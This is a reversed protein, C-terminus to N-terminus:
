SWQSKSMFSLDRLVNKLLEDDDAWRLKLVVEELLKATPFKGEYNATVGIDAAGKLDHGVVKQIWRPTVMAQSILYNIVTHRFSHFVTASIQGEEGGIGLKRRYRSFWSTVPGGMNGKKERKLEPFLRTQGEEKVSEIYRLLGLDNLLFPHVPVLRKGADSKVHKGDERDNIDFCWVGEDQRIDAIHLQVIEELRMGTFLAILPAWYKSPTRATNKLYSRPNFIKRLEETTFARRAAESSRQVKPIILASNLPKPQIGYELECWNLLMKVMTFKTDLTKDTLRQERPINMAQLELPGKGKFEKLYPRAPQACMVASFDRMIQRDLAGLPIDRGRYLAKVIEAFQRVNTFINRKSSEAFEPAKAKIYAEVAQFVTVGASSPSATVPSLPSVPPVMHPFEAPAPASPIFWRDAISQAASIRFDKRPTLSGSFMPSSASEILAAQALLLADCLKAQEVPLDSPRQKAQEGAEVSFGAKELLGRALQIIHSPFDKMAGADMLDGYQSEYLDQRKEWAEQGGKSGCSLLFEYEDKLAEELWKRAIQRIQEDSLESLAKLSPHHIDSMNKDIRTSTLKQLRLRQCDRALSFIRQVASALRIAKPRADKLSATGLSRRIETQGLCPRLEDPVRVRFYLVNRHQVLHGPASASLRSRPSRSPKRNLDGSSTPDISPSPQAEFRSM